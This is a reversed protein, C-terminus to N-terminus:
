HHIAIEWLSYGFETGRQTGHIRVWRAQTPAFRIVERKGAGKATAYVTKWKEGDPSVQISYAKGFAQQWVLEVRSISEMKGLDVALWQPNRFESSWRTDGKGDVAFEARFTQGNWTMVSSAKVPRGVALNRRVALEEPTLVAFDRLSRVDPAGKKVLAAELTYRGPETPVAVHFTLRKNGLAAVECPQTQEALTTSARLVRFRVNGSWNEYLDNIVIVPLDRKAGAPLDEAWFDLM